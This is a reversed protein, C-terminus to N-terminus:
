IWDSMGFHNFIHEFENIVVKRGGVIAVILHFSAMPCGAATVQPELTM